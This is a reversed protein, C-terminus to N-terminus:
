HVSTPILSPHRLIKRRKIMDFFADLRTNLGAEGTLEDFTLQLLPVSQFRHSYRSALEGVISDPGCSFIIIHIIGDITENELFHLITGLIEREYQFFMNQDLNSMQKEIVKRPMQESTIYDAGFECIKQRINLSALSDNLVYSHGVLAIKLPPSQEASSDINILDITSSTENINPANSSIENKIFSRKSNGDTFSQLLIDNNEWQSLHEETIYLQEYHQKQAKKAKLIARTIKIPNKSIRWGTAYAKLILHYWKHNSKAMSFYPRIIPPLDPFMSRLVDAIGLFKPCSVNTPHDSHFRPIFLYDVKDKLALVHGFYLKSSYCDEDPAYRISEKKITSNTQPSVVVKAGLEQFFVKWLAEFKYYLLARPLGVTKRGM